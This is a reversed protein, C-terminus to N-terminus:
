VSSVHRIWVGFVGGHLSQDESIGDIFQRVTRVMCMCDGSKQHILSQCREQEVIPECGNRLWLMGLYM